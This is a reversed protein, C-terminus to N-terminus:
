MDQIYTNNVLTGTTGDRTLQQVSASGTTLIRCSHRSTADSVGVTTEIEETNLVNVADHGIRDSEGFSRMGSDDFCELFVRCEQAAGAGSECRIRVNANDGKGNGVFPIAYAKRAAGVGKYGLTTTVSVDKEIHKDDADPLHISTPANFRIASALSIMSGHRLEMKGGPVFYVKIMRPDTGVDDPDTSFGSFEATDGVITFMENSDADKGGDYDAFIMDGDQFLGMTGSATFQIVGSLDDDVKTGDIQLIPNADTGQSVTLALTGLLQRPSSDALAARKDIDINASITRGGGTGSLNLSVSEADAVVIQGALTSGASAKTDDCADAPAATTGGLCFYSSVPGTPVGAGGTITRTMSTVKVDDALAYSGVYPALDDNAGLGSLGKLRPLTFTLIEDDDLDDVVTFTVSADGVNGDREVSITGAGVLDSAAVTEAFVGSSLNFTVEFTASEPDAVNFVEADVADLAATDTDRDHNIGANTTFHLSVRPSVVVGATATTDGDPGDGVTAEDPYQIVLKDSDSGFLEEAYTVTDEVTQVFVGASAGFGAVCAVVVVAHKENEM